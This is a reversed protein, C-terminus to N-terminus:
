SVRDQIDRLYETVNTSDPDVTGGTRAKLWSTDDELANLRKDQADLRETVDPWSTSGGLRKHIWDLEDRLAQYQSDSMDDEETYVTVGNLDESWGLYPGFAQEMASISSYARIDANWTSIVRGDGCHFAVHRYINPSHFFVPVALPPHRDDPHPYKSGNWADIASAYYAAVAFCERTFQLCYGAAAMQGGVRDEAYDVAAQGTRTM